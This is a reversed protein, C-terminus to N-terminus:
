RPVSGGGECDRERRSTAAPSGACAAAYLATAGRPLPVHYFGTESTTFRMSTKQEIAAGHDLLLATVKPQDALCSILLPSRGLVDVLDVDAGHGLLWEIVGVDGRECALTLTRENEDLYASIRM